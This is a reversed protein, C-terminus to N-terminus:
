YVTAYTRLTSKSSKTLKVYANNFIVALLNIIYNLFAVKVVNKYWSDNYKRIIQWSGQPLIDLWVSFKKASGVSAGIFASVELITTSQYHFLIIYSIKNRIYNLYYPRLDMITPPTPHPFPSANYSRIGIKM